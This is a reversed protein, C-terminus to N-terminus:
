SPKRFTVIYFAKLIDRLQIEVMDKPILDIPPKMMESRGRFHEGFFPLGAYFKEVMAMEDGILIKTGPKAVRIMEGIAKGKDGFFNIGGIHFVVDFVDEKFPLSEANGLFLEADIKWRRMNGQCKKLMGWSIDLGFYKANRPLLGVNFGTGISVELVKAENSIELDALVNRRLRGGTLFGYIRSGLDYFGASRDYLDQYQKNLGSIETYDIFMPIGDQIPFKRGSEIGVLAESPVGDRRMESILKLPEFTGPCCLLNM